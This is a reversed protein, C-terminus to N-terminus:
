KKIENQIFNVVLSYLVSTLVAMTSVPDICLSPRCLCRCFYPWILMHMAELFFLFDKINLTDLIKPYNWLNNVKNSWDKHLTSQFTSYLDCHM